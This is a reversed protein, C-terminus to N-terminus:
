RRGPSAAAQKLWLQIAETVAKSLGGKEGGYREVVAHRLEKLLDDPIVINVKAM